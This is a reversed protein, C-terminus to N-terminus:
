PHFNIYPKKFSITRLVRFVEYFITPTYGDRHIIFQINDLGLEIRMMDAEEVKKLKTTRTDIALLNSTAEHMLLLSSPDANVPYNKIIIVDYEKQWSAILAKLVEPQKWKNNTENLRVINLEDELSREMASDADVVLVKKGLIAAARALGTAITRKGELNGFSSIVVVSNKNLMNKIQMDVALKQFAKNYVAPNKLYPVRGFVPTDSNKLVSTENNVRGKLFHVLYVLAVGFIFGLFGAVAKMLSPNPSVPKKPVEGRSIIRHFSINAAKAIEADTKKERLFRYTQDNLNFNRELVTMNRDKYPYSLFEAEAQSITNNLDDYKLQMNERTNEVSEGLYQYIDNLKDDVVKVKENEPTYKLLLDRRDSQLSKVKKILETSLLDNFTQFNPALEIFNNKGNKIYHSLSDIAVLEMQLGSRRNKLEALKRLDTEAEQKLNVIRHKNRFNELVGESATLREDYKKVEKNLFDVTTDAAAYKESIYDSIYAESIKNVLDASKQASTAKYAIRLIPTEKDLYIVDVNSRIEDVLKKHSNITFEYKDNVLLAPKAKLLEDNRLVYFSAKPTTFLTNMKGTIVKKDATTIDILSDNKIVLGMIADYGDKKVEAPIISFPCDNYLETKHIDGVRYATFSLDINELTKEAVVQSKVMEVEAAMKNNGSAFVDFDKYLNAHSVGIQADALKVFSVSEYMPTTYHLYKKAIMVSATMIVAIIPLGRYFPRLMNVTEKFDSM